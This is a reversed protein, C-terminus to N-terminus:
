KFFFQGCPHGQSSKSQESIVVAGSTVVAVSGGVDVDVVVVVLDAVVVVAVVM